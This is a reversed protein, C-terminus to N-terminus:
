AAGIVSVPFAGASAIALSFCFRKIRTFARGALCRGVDTLGAEGQQSLQRARSSPTHLAEKETSFKPVRTM